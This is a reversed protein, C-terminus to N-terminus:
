REAGSWILDLSEVLSASIHTCKKRMFAKLFTALTYLEEGMNKGHLNVIRNMLLRKREWFLRRGQLMLLMM